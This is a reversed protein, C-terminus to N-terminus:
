VIAAHRLDAGFGVERLPRPRGEGLGLDAAEDAAAGSGGGARDRDDLDGVLGVALGDDLELGSDLM